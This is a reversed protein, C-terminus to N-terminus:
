IHTLLVHEYKINDHTDGKKIDQVYPIFFHTPIPDILKLLMRPFIPAIYSTYLIKIRKFLLMAIMHFNHNMASTLLWKGVVM